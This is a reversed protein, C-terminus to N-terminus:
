RQWFLEELQLIVHTRLGSRCLPLLSSMTWGVAPSSNCVRQAVDAPNRTTHECAFSGLIIYPLGVLAGAEACPM